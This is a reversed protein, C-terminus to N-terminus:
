TSPLAALAGAFQATLKRGVVDETIAEIAAQCINFIGVADDVELTDQPHMLPNRKTKLIKLFDVLSVSAGATEAQKIYEGWNRQSLKPLAGTSALVYAKLGIEVARLIHFGCATGCAYALCRGAEDIERRIVSDLMPVSSSAYGKSAGEILSDVSLNGKPLVFFLPTDRLEKALITEFELVMGNFNDVDDQTFTQIAPRQSRQFVEELLRLLIRAKEVSTPLKNKEFEGSVFDQLKRFADGFARAALTFRMGDEIGTLPHVYLGLLYFSYTDISKM